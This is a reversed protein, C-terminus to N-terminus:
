DHNVRAFEVRDIRGSVGEIKTSPRAVFTLTQQACGDPVVIEGNFSSTEGPPVDVNGVTLGSACTLQWYPQADRTYELGLGHGALRYRGAPLLQVQKLLIGGTNAPVSFEFVGGKGDFQLDTAVGPQDVTTWDFPSPFLTRTSFRGNRVNDRRAFRYLSTYLAWAENVHGQAILGGITAASAGESVHVGSRTLESLLVATAQPNSGMTSAYDTFSDAWAPRASLTRVLERRVSPEAIAQALVPYLLEAAPRSTRLAIDYHRLAEAIDGRGVSDEILWLEVQLERRSLSHAYRMLRRASAVNGQVQANIALATAAAVATADERLAQRGLRDSLAREDATSNKLALSRAYAATSRGDGPALRWASDPAQNRLMSSLTQTVSLYGLFAAVLAVSLRLGWEMPSRRSLQGVRTSRRAPM